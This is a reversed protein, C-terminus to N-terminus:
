KKRFNFLRIPVEFFISFLVKKIVYSFGFFDAWIIYFYIRYFPTLLNYSMKNRLEVDRGIGVFINAFRYSDRLMLLKIWMDYDTGIKIKENFIIKNKKLFSSNILFTNGLINNKKIDQLNVKYNSGLISNLVVCPFHYFDYQLYFNEDCLFNKEIPLFIDDDDCFLLYDASSSQICTNRAYSIHNVLGSIIRNNGVLYENLYDYGYFSGNIVIALNLNANISDFVSLSDLMKKLLAPRNYTAIVIEIQKVQM